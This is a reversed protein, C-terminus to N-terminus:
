STKLYPLHIVFSAGKGPTSHATIRGGHRQVIKQCIALGIGSGKIKQKHLRFFPKFIEAAYKEDFGIGNDEFTIGHMGDKEEYRIKIEPPIDPHRFKLANTLLNKLLQEMQNPDSQVVPLVDKEIKAGNMTIEQKLDKQVQEFVANLDVPQLNRIDDTGSRAYKLIDAFYRQMQRTSEDIQQLYKEQEPTWQTQTLRLISSLTLLAHLPEQLDHSAIFSFLELQELETRLRTTEETQRLLKAEVQRREQLSTLISKIRTVLETPHFPKFLYEDAGADWGKLLAERHTLATLLVVPIHRIKENKKVERCLTIGDMKPMMVDSLIIDPLWQVAAELAKEGNEAFWTEMTPELLSGIYSALEENDEAILIKGKKSSVTQNPSVKEPFAKFPVLSPQVRKRERTFIEATEQTEAPPAKCVVTFRSGLGPESLVSITGGLLTVFEKVMALGLGTGEFRRTSAGEIQRFKEFLLPIQDQPIGIGSDQVTLTLKSDRVDLGITIEGRETFKVANSLLNFLIRDYFYHDMQIYAESVAPQFTVYLEKQELAPGFDKVIAKTASIIELPRRKAEMKGAELKAFDLLGNIMQLLRLTNRYVTELLNQVSPAWKGSNDSLLSELPPLMLTLPTRLEHSVNTFFEDKTKETERLKRYAADIEQNKAKIEENKLFQDYHQVAYFRVTLVVFFLTSGMFFLASIFRPIQFPSPNLAAALVYCGLIALGTMLHHRARFSNMAFMGLFALNLGQYYGSASGETLYIMLSMGAGASFIMLDSILFSNKQGSKHLSVAMLLAFALSMSIRIYLFTLWYAPYVIADLGSFLLILAIGAAGVIRLRTLVLSRLLEEYPNSAIKKVM